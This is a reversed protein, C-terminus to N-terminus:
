LCHSSSWKIATSKLLEAMDGNCGMISAVSIFISSPVGGSYICHCLLCCLYVAESLKNDVAKM